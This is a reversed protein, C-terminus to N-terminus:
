YKKLHQHSMTIFQYRTYMHLQAHVRAILINDCHIYISYSVSSMSVSLLENHCDLSLDYIVALHTCVIVTWM